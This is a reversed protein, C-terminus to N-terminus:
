RDGDDRMMLLKGGSDIVIWVKNDDDDDDIEVVVVDYLSGKAKGTAELPPWSKSFINNGNGSGNPKPWPSRHELLCVTPNMTKTKKQKKKIFM